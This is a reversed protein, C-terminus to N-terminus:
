VPPGVSPRFRQAPAARDHSQQFGPAAAAGIVCCNRVAIIVPLGSRQGTRVVIEEHDLHAVGPRRRM